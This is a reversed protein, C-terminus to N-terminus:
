SANSTLPTSTQHCGSANCNASYLAAGSVPDDARAGNCALLAFVGAGVLRRISNLCNRNM